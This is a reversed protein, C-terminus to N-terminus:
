YKTHKSLDLLGFIEHAVSSCTKQQREGKKNKKKQREGKVMCILHMKVDSM